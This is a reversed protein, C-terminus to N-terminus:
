AFITYPKDESPEVTIDYTESVGIRFEDVEVPEVENGDAQVVTMKMGPIRIDFYTMASANVFRLRVAEGAKFLATWNQEPSKGNIQPTFGQLDEIDTPMM